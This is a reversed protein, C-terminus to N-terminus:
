GQRLTSNPDLRAARRGPLVSAAAASTMLILVVVALTPLDLVEVGFLQHQIVRGVALAAALGLTVGILALGLSGGVIM